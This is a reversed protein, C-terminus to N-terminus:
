RAAEDPEIYFKRVIVIVVVLLPVAFLVGSPWDARRVVLVALVALAPPLAVAWRQVLPTLLYGEIQQITLYLLAVYIAAVPSESFRRARRPDSRCAARFLV